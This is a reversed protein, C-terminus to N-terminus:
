VSTADVLLALPKAGEDPSTISIVLTGKKTKIHRLEVLDSVVRM